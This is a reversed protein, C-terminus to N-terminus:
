KRGLASLPVFPPSKESPREKVADKLVKFVREQLPTRALFDDYAAQLHARYRTRAGEDDPPPGSSGDGKLRDGMRRLIHLRAVNLVKPEFTVGLYTFFDEATSLRCLDQFVSV